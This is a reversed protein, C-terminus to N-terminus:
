AIEGKGQPTKVWLFIRLSSLLCGAWPWQLCHWLVGGLSWLPSSGDTDMLATHM